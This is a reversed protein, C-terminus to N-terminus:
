HHLHAPIGALNIESLFNEANWTMPRITGGDLGAGSFDIFATSYKM